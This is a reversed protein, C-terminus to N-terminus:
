SSRLRLCGAEHLLNFLRDRGEGGQECPVVCANHFAGSLWQQRYCDKLFTEQRMTGCPTPEWQRRHSDWLLRDQNCLEVMHMGCLADCSYPSASEAPATEAASARPEEARTRAARKGAPARMAALAASRVARRSPSSVLGADALALALFPCRASTLRRALADWEPARFAPLDRVADAALGAADPRATLPTPEVQTVSRALAVRRAADRATFFSVSASGAVSIERATGARSLGVARLFAGTQGRQAVEDPTAGRWREAHDLSIRYVADARRVLASLVARDATCRPERWDYTGFGPNAKLLRAALQQVEPDRVTVADDLVLVQRGTARALTGAVRERVAPTFVSGAAILAVPRAGVDPPSAGAPVHVGWGCAGCTVAAVVVLRLAFRRAVDPHCSAHGARRGRRATPQASHWTVRM